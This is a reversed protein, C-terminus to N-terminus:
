GYRHERILPGSFILRSIENRLNIEIGDFRILPRIGYSTGFSWVHPETLLEMDCMHQMGGLARSKLDNRVVDDEDNSPANSM